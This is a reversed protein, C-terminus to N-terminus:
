PAATARTQVQTATRCASEARALAPSVDTNSVRHASLVNDLNSFWVKRVPAGSENCRGDVEARAEWNPADDFRWVRTSDKRSYGRAGTSDCSKAPGWWDEIHGPVVARSKTLVLCHKEIASLEADPTLKQPKSAPMWTWVAYVGYLVPLLPVGIIIAIAINDRKAREAYHAMVRAHREADSEPQSM